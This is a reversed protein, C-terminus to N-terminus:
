EVFPMLKWPPFPYVAEMSTVSVKMSVFVFWKWALRNNIAFFVEM